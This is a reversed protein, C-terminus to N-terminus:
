ICCLNHPRTTYLTSFDYNFINKARKRTDVIDLKEITPFSNEVVWFKSNFHAKRIFVKLM